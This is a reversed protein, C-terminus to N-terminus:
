KRGKGKDAVNRSNAIKSRKLALILELEGKGMNLQRALVNLDSEESVLSFAEKFKAGTQRASQSAYSIAFNLRESEMGHERAMEHVAARSDLRGNNDIYYGGVLSDVNKAKDVAIQELIREIEAKTIAPPRKVGMRQARIARESQERAIRRSRVVLAVLLAAMALIMALELLLVFDSIGFFGQPPRRYAAEAAKIAARDMDRTVLASINVAATDPTLLMLLIETM